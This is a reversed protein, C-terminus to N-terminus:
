LINDYDSKKTGRKKRLLASFGIMVPLGIIIVLVNFWVIHTAIALLFFIIVILFAAGSSAIMMDKQKKDLFKAQSTYFVFSFYIDVIFMVFAVQAYITVDIELARMMIYFVLFLIIIGLFTLKLILEIVKRM